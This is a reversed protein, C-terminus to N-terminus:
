PFWRQVLMALFAARDTPSVDPSRPAAAVWAAVQLTRLEAM